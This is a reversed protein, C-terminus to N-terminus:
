LCHGFFKVRSFVLDFRISFPGLAGLACGGALGRAWAARGAVGLGRARARGRKSGRGATGRAGAQGVGGTRRSSARQGRAGAAQRDAREPGARQQRRRVGPAGGQQRTGAQAHRGRAQGLAWARRGTSRAGLAGQAHMSRGAGWGLAWRGDKLVSYGRYLIQIVTCYKARALWGSNTM